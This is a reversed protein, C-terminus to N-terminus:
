QLLILLGRSSQRAFDTEVDLKYVYTGSGGFDTQNLRVIHEGAQVSQNDVVKILQGFQNYIQVRVNAKHTLMIRLTTEHTFPNPYIQHSIAPHESKDFGIYPGKLLLDEQDNSNVAILDSAALWEFVRTGLEIDQLIRVRLWGLPKQKGFSKGNVDFWAINVKAAKPHIAFIEIGEVSLVEVLQPNYSLFLTFAKLDVDNTISLPYLLIDGAKAQISGDYQMAAISKQLSPDLSANMDGTAAFYINFFNDGLEIPPVTIEHYVLNAQNQAQYHGFATFLRDPAVPFRKASPSVMSSGALQFNHRGGYFPVSGSAGVIRYMLMLADLSTHSGSNNIDALAAYFPTYESSPTPLIWPFVTVQPNGIVMYGIILADLSTVSSWNNWTWVDEILGSVSHEWVRLNYAIGPVLGDFSYHGQIVPRANSILGDEDALQVFFGSNPFNSPILTEVENFFAMKGSLRYFPAFNATVM